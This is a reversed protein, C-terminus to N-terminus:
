KGAFHAAGLLAAQQNTCVKIPYSALLDAYRGKNLYSDVFAGNQMFQLNKGAIGGALVIGATPLCKLALNATEAGYIQCFLELAAQCLPQARSAHHSISAALDKSDLQQPQCTNTSQLYQYINVLGAGSLLREYSVHDPYLAFLYQLLGIQQPCAPAFDGHGGESAVVQYDCGNHVLIAEGLGTGAALIAINGNTAAPRQHLTVFDSAPLQLIGWATAALDNLLQVKAAGTQSQIDDKLLHWPLNITRCNGDIIPGAVGLCVRDIAVKGALFQALLQSFQAFDASAFTECSLRQLTGASNSYLALITKTGGLDGALIIQDSM